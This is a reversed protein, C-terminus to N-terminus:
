KGKIANLMYVANAAPDKGDFVASGTVILDIGASAVEAINNKTVGGDICILINDKNHDKLLSKMTTLRQFTSAIFKQGSFGPNVALLVVIDIEDLLPVVAELPTSPNLAIGRLVGRSPDNVNQMEKLMQLSRHIHKSSEINLTIIDAGADVTQRAITDPDSAMIHVDKFLATKVAKIFPPGFTLLPCFHGDMVDFHLIKIGAQAVTDLQKSLCMLDATLVGVTLMPQNQRIFQALMLDAM